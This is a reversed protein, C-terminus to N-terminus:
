AAQQKMAKDLHSQYIRLVRNCGNQSQNVKGRKANIYRTAWDTIAQWSQALERASGRRYMNSVFVRHAANVEPTTYGLSNAAVEVIEHILEDAEKRRRNLNKGLYSTRWVIRADKHMSLLLASSGALQADLRALGELKDELIHGSARLGAEEADERNMDHRHADLTVARAREALPGPYRAIKTYEGPGLAVGVYPAQVGPLKGYISIPMTELTVIRKNKPNKYLPNDPRIILGDNLAELRSREFDDGYVDLARDQHRGEVSADRPLESMAVGLRGAMVVVNSRRELDLGISEFDEVDFVGRSENLQTVISPLLETQGSNPVRSM